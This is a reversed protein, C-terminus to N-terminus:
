VPPRLSTIVDFGLNITQHQVAEICDHWTQSPSTGVYELVLQHFLGKWISEKFWFYYDHHSQECRVFHHDGCRWEYETKGSGQFNRDHARPRLGRRSKKQTRQTWYKRHEQRVFSFHSLEWGIGALHFNEVAHGDRRSSWHSTSTNDTPHRFLHWSLQSYWRIAGFEIDAASAGSQISIVEGVPHLVAIRSGCHLHKSRVRSSRVYLLVPRFFTTQRAFVLGGHSSMRSNKALLRNSPSNTACSWRLHGWEKRQNLLVIVTGGFIGNQFNILTPLLTLTAWKKWESCHYFSSFM